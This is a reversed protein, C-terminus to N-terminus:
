APARRSGPTQTLRLHSCTHTKGQLLLETFFPEAGNVVGSLDFMRVMRIAQNFRVRPDRGTETNSM